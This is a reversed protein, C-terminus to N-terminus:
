QRLFGNIILARANKEVRIIVVATPIWKLLLECNVSIEFRPKPTRKDSVHILVISEGVVICFTKM